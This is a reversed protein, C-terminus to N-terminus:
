ALRNRAITEDITMMMITRPSPYARQCHFHDTFTQKPFISPRFGVHLTAVAIRDSDVSTQPCHMMCGTAAPVGTFRACGTCVPQMATQAICQGIHREDGLDRRNVTSGPRAISPRSTYVYDVSKRRDRSQRFLFQQSFNASRLSELRGKATVREVGNFLNSMNKEILRGLVTQCILKGRM